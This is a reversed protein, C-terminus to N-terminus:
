YWWEVNPDHEPSDDVHIFDPHSGFRHFGQEILAQRILFRARSNPTAIDVAMGTTHPGHFGSSSVRNNHVPCRLGSTIIFPVGSKERARDLRRMFHRDMDALGLGCGCQCRFGPDGSISFYKYTM